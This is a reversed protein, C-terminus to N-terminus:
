PEITSTRHEALEACLREIMEPTHGCSLSMRLCAQGRPVTPPRIAPVWLGKDRLTAALRLAAASDGVFIPVIQSESRGADWGQERLRRRLAHAMELLRTRRQPEAAVIDLATLAAAAGAAPGATSFVYPRARNVLWDILRRSGSVFGGHCGLAKSLTGVRVHVRDEVGLLEAVGRGRQGLVGTAHAEDILLMCDYAEALRALEPLPALDGHMSFLSDTVILRRGAAPAPKPSRVEPKLLAGEATTQLRFGSAQEAHRQLLRELAACDAHPYVHVDARSLRCGDVLSAHNLEDSFVVDGRRVLAAVAGVNAAYGSAFVLAAETGEFEALRRELREHAATHGVILPSAGAGWGEGAIARRAAEALRPDAALGLYDNAAFNVYERGGVRIVAAQWGERVVLRRRLSEADLRDLEGDIWALPDGSVPVGALPEAAL